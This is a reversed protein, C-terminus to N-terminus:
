NASITIKYTATINKNDKSTATIVATGTSKGTVTGDSSVTAISTSSSSWTVGTNKVFKPIVKAVLKGTNNVKISSPGTIEIREISIDEIPTNGGDITYYVKGEYSIGKPYYITHSQENIIYIDFVNNITSTRDPLIYYDEGFNLSIGQVKALEIVYYNENDNVNKNLLATATYKNRIPLEKNESYYHEVKEQLALIDTKLNIMKKREFYPGTNVSITVLLILLIAITITLVLLTVGNEKKIKNM